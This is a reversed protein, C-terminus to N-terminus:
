KPIDVSKVNTKMILEYNESNSLKILCLLAALTQEAMEKNKIEIFDVTKTASSFFHIRWGKSVKIRDINEYYVAKSSTVTRVSGSLANMKKGARQQSIYDKTIDISTPAKPQTRAAKTIIFLASDVNNITNVKFNEPIQGYSINFAFIFAILLLKKM